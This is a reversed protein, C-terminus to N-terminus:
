EDLPKQCYEGTPRCTKDAPKLRSEAPFFLLEPKGRRANAQLRQLRLVVTDPYRLRAKVVSSRVVIEVQTM